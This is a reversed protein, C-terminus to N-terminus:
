KDENAVNTKVIAEHTYCDSMCRPNNVDPRTDTFFIKEAPMKITKLYEADITQGDDDIVEALMLVYGTVSYAQDASLSQPAFYPMARRIMDYLTPAHGWFNNIGRMMVNREGDIAATQMEELSSGLIMPYRNAGEGFDGHCMACRNQYITEGEEFDGSGAPLNEGDFYVSIDWDVLEKANTPTGVTDLKESKEVVLASANFSALAIVVSLIINKFM